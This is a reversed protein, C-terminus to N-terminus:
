GDYPTAVFTITFNQDVNTSTSPPMSVNLGFPQVANYALNSKFTSHTTNLLEWNTADNDYIAFAPEDHGATADASVTWETDADASINVTVDVAVSGDNTCNGWNEATQGFEGIGAGEGDWSNQDLTINATADPTLTVNISENAGMTSPAFLMGALSVMMCATLIAKIKKM